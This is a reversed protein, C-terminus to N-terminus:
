PYTRQSWRSLRREPAPTASDISRAVAIPGGGGRLRPRRRGGEARRIDGAPRDAEAVVGALDHDQLPGIVAARKDALMVVAAVHLRQLLLYVPSPSRRASWRTRPAPRALIHSAPRLWPRDRATARPAWRNGARGPRRRDAAEVVRACRRVHHHDVAAAPDGIHARDVVRGRGSEGVDLGRM